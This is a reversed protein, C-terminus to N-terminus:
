VLRLEALARPLAESVDSALVGRDGGDAALEGARGHLWAAALAAEFAPLGSALLATALGTLVDGLGASAMAPTGTPNVRLRGDPAAIVTGCGKLLVVAGSREALTRAAGLRDAQVAAISSALLRAAEGPHPTLLAAGALAPWCERHRALLNLADADYVTPRGWAAVAALLAQAGPATGLGPGIGCADVRALLPGLREAAAESFDGALLPLPWTMTEPCSQAVSGALTEPLVLTVLGAGGRLAARAALIGAGLLGESAGVLAVRGAQGKHADRARPPLLAAIDAAALRQPTGADLDPCRGPLGIDVVELRGAQLMGPTVALGRKLAGLCVTVTAQVCPQGVAATDADLGSPLDIALVPRGAANVAEILEALLGRPDGSSGTGLLGDIVLDAAALAAAVGALSELRTLPLGLARVLDVQRGADSTPDAPLDAALIECRYGWRQLWRAAVLADGGNNGKGCLLLVRGGDPLLGRAAQAVAVGAHEMLLLTPLGYQRAAAEDWARMQAATLLPQM